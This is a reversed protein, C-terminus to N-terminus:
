KKTFTHTKNSPFNEIPFNETIHYRVQIKIYLPKDKEEILYSSEKPVIMFFSGNENPKVKYNGVSNKSSNVVEVFAEKTPSGDHAKIIGSIIYNDKYPLVAACM